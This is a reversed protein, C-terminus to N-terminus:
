RYGGALEDPPINFIQSSSKGDPQRFRFEIKLGNRRGEEIYPGYWFRVEGSANTQYHGVQRGNVFVWVPWGPVVTKRIETRSGKVVQYAPGIRREEVGCGSLVALTAALLLAASAGFAFRANELLMRM